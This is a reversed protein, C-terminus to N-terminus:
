RGTPAVDVVRVAVPDSVYRNGDDVEAIAAIRLVGPATPRWFAVWRSGTPRAAVSAVRVGRETVSFTVDRAPEYVIAGLPVPRSGAVDGSPSVVTVVTAPDVGEQRERTALGTAFLSLRRQEAVREMASIFSPDVGPAVNRALLAAPVEDANAELSAWRLELVHYSYEYAVGHSVSSVWAVMLLSM